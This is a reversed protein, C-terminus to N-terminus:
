VNDELKEHNGELAYGLCATIFSQLLQLNKCTILTINFSLRAFYPLPTEPPVSLNEAQTYTPVLFPELEKGTQFTPGTFKKAV